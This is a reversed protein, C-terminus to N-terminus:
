KDARQLSLYQIEKYIERARQRVRESEETDRLAVRFSKKMLESYRQQLKELRSKRNFWGSM